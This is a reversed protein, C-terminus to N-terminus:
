AAWARTGSWGAKGQVVGDHGGIYAVLTKQRHEFPPGFDHKSLATAPYKAKQM